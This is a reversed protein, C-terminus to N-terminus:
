ARAGMLGPLMRELQRVARYTNPAPRRQGNGRRRGEALFSVANRYNVHLIAMTRAIERRRRKAQYRRRKNM